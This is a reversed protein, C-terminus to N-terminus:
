LSNYMKEVEVRIFRRQDDVYVLIQHRGLFEPLKDENPDRAQYRSQHRDFGYIWGEENFFIEIERSSSGDDLRTAVLDEIEQASMM